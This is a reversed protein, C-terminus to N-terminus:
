TNPYDTPSVGFQKKFSTSFHSLTSFGTMDAIESINHRGERLLEAARNLKYNKFFVSPNMGTLGKIKYYLKTRSISLKDVLSSIDFESNSLEEEMLAYLRDLFAKDIPSLDTNASSDELKTASSIIQRMKERNQLLSRILALVYAPDFPKTVYADAGSNLGEVQDAVLSKATVLIVPTHSLQIDDKIKRCLDFGDSGPMVVDSIILAPHIESAMRFGTDAAFAAAVNYHPRLLARLFHIVETDDDVLLITPLSAPEDSEAPEEEPIDEPIVRVQDVHSCAHEDATFVDDAIPVVLTFVSGSAPPPVNDATLDGHHLRALARAYYLGIGTGWNYMGTTQRNLQYYREFIRELQEPPIGPGSDTVSIKATSGEVDLSLVIRGGSPTFKVANSMLNTVIKEIKDRDFTADLPQELGQTVLGIGKERANIRFIDSIEALALALDGRDVGLRLTDNELKHFDLLQNVLRLMRRVSRQVIRLMSDQESSLNGENRLQELPASIMTLPTRFEHSINAFFSMNMENVRREQEKEYIAHETKAREIALRRRHRLFGYAIIGIIVLYFMIAWWSVWPAPAIHVKVAIEAASSGGEQSRVRFTYTGPALNAYYAEHSNRADIWYPDHGELRYVYRANNAQAYDLIAFSISFGNQTHDLYIDPNKGLSCSIIEPNEAANIVRNHVKLDEFTLKSIQMRDVDLPDFVTLGHSGGFVIHGDPLRTGARDYFQNGGIGDEAFYNTIHGTTRDYRGIGYQTSIWMHGHDDEVFAAIDTCPAGAIRTIGKTKTDYLLPGNGITGIWIKGFSDRVLTSPIFVGRAIVSEWAGKSMGPETFRMTKPDFDAIPQMLSAVLMLGDSDPAIGSVFGFGQTGVQTFRFEEDGPSLVGLFPSGLGVYITGDPGESIAHPAHMEYTKEVSLSEGDFRCRFLKGGFLSALWISGDSSAFVTNIKRHPSDGFQPFTSPDFSRVESNEPNYVCVAHESKSIWLRGEPDVSVSNVSKGAFETNLIKINNFKGRTAPRVAFGADYSGLWLNGNSDTFFGTVNFPPAEFPFDNDRESILRGSFNDYLMLGDTLTSIIISGDKGYPHIHSFHIDAIDPNDSIAAPATIFRRSDTDYFDIRGKSGLLLRGKERDFHYAYPHEPLPISDELAFTSGNFRRLSVPNVVWLAGSRDAYCFSHSTYQYDLTEIVPDFAGTEDSYVLLSSRLNLLMRGDPMEVFQYGCNNNYRVPVRVFKDRNDLIAVGNITAVWLRNRSDCLLDNIQNDPLDLSDDTCFYQHIEHVNYKNLGRFTGLWVHGASDEAFAMIRQNSLDHGIVMPAITEAPVVAPDSKRCGSVVAAIMFIVTALKKMTKSNRTRFYCNKVIFLTHFLRKSCIPLYKFM